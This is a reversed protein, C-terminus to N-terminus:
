VKVRDALSAGNLSEQIKECNVEFLHYSAFALFNVSFDYYVGTSTTMKFKLIAEISSTHTGVVCAYICMTLVMNKSVPYLFRSCRFYM